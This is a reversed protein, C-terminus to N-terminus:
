ELSPSPRKEALAPGAFDRLTAMIEEDHGAMEPLRNVQYRVMLQNGKEKARAVATVWRVYKPTEMIRASADPSAAAELAQIHAPPLSALNDLAKRLEVKDGGFIMAKGRLSLKAFNAMHEVPSFDGGDPTGLHHILTQSLDRWEAASVSARVRQLSNM